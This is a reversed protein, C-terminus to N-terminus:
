DEFGAFMRKLMDGYTVGDPSRDKSLLSAQHLGELVLECGAYLADEDLPEGAGLHTQVLDALGTVQVLKEDADGQDQVVVSQGGAFWDVIPKYVDQTEGEAGSREEAYPAPVYRKFVASVGQGLLREAVSAPGEREGEFVLEIKGTVASLAGFLDSVRATIESRGLLLGRREANSIVNELLAITLRVSVGSSQDVFESHRAQIATEEIQRKYVDGLGRSM